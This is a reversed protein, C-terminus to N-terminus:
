PVGGNHYSRSWCRITRPYTARRRKRRMRPPKILICANTLPNRTRTCTFRIRSLALCMWIRKRPYKLVLSFCHSYMCIFFAVPTMWFSHLLHFIRCPTSYIHRMRHDPMTISIVFQKKYMHRVSYTWENNNYIMMIWVNINQYDLCLTHCISRYKVRQESYLLNIPIFRPYLPETSLSVNESSHANDPYQLIGSSQWSQLLQDLFLESEIIINISVVYEATTNLMQSSYNIYTIKTLLLNCVPYRMYCRTSVSLLTRLCKCIAGNLHRKYDQKGCSRYIM